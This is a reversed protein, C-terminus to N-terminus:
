RNGRLGAVVQVKDSILEAESPNKYTTFCSTRNQETINQKVKGGPNYRLNFYKERNFAGTAQLSKVPTWGQDM